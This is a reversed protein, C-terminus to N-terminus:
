ELFYCFHVVLDYIVMYKAVTDLFLDRNNILSVCKGNRFPKNKNANRVNMASCGNNSNDM